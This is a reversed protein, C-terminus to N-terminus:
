VDVSLSEVVEAFGLAAYRERAPNTHTVALGIAQLGDRTGAALARRLLATGLGPADPHRFIQSLWPGGFPPEGDSDNILIAGQVEGGPGVALASCPLLPGLLRGFMIEELEEEEAEPRHDPHGPPYALEAVPALESAPRDVETVRFGDPLPPELWAAPAPDQRLDRSMVHAHRHMRAGAAVLAKALTPAAGVRWGAFAAMLAPVAEAEEVGDVLEVLDAMPRHDDALRRQYRALPRGDPATLLQDPAM